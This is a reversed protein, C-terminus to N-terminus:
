ISEFLNGDVEVGKFDGVSFLRLANTLSVYDLKEFVLFLIAFHYNAITEECECECNNSAPKM